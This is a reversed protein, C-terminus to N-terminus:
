KGRIGPRYTDQSDKPGPIDQVIKYSLTMPGSGDPHAIRIRSSDPELVLAGSGGVLRVERLSNFLGTEGWAEDEYRVYTVEGGDPSFHM